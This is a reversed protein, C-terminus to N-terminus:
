DINEKNLIVKYIIINNFDQSHLYFILLYLCLLLLSKLLIIGTVEKDWEKGTGWESWESTVPGTSGTESRGFPGCRPHFPSRRSHISSTLSVRSRTVETWEPEGGHRWGRDGETKVTDRRAWEGSTIGVGLRGGWGKVGMGESSRVDHGFPVGLSPLM